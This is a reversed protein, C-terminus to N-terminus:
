IITCRLDKIEELRQVIYEVQNGSVPLKLHRHKNVEM